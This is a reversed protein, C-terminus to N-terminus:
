WLNDSGAAFDLELKDVPERIKKDVEKSFNLNEQKKSFEIM